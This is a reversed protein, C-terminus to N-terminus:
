YENIDIGANLLRKYREYSIVVAIPKGNKQIFAAQDNDVLGRILKSSQGRNFEGINLHKMPLKAKKKDM